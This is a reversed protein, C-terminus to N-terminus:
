RSSKIKRVAKHERTLVVTLFYTAGDSAVPLTDMLEWGDDLFAQLEPYEVLKIGSPEDLGPIMFSVVKTM